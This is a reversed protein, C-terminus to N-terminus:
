GKATIVIGQGAVDAKVSVSDSLTSALRPLDTDLRSAEVEATLDAPPKVDEAAIFNSEVINITADASYDAGSTTRRGYWAGVLSLTLICAIVVTRRRSIARIVDEFSPQETM